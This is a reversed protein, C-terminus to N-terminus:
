KPHPLREPVRRLHRRIWILAELEALASIGLATIWLTQTQEFYMAAERLGGHHAGFVTKIPDPRHAALAKLRALV